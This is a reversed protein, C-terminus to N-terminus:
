SRPERPLSSQSETGESEGHATPASPGPERPAGTERSAPTRVEYGAEAGPRGDADGGAVGDQLEAPAPLRRVVGGEAAVCFGHNRSWLDPGSRWRWGLRESQINGESLVGSVSAVVVKNGDRITIAFTDRGRGPEGEDAARAEFTYGTVGNWRGTGSLVVSDVTPKPGRGPKFAPNDWFVIAGISTSEFRDTRAKQKATKPTRMEYRLAGREQGVHREAARFEFDHDRGDPTRLGGEGQMRGELGSVTYSVSTTSANGAADQAMVTFTHTGESSTDIPAGSPVPGACSVIGSGSDACSYSAIVVQNFEYTVNSPSTTAVTPAITDRVTVTVTDAATGGYRDDVTLTITHMGLPLTVSISAGTRQGFPGTWTFTLADSDPDSSASGDLTVVADAPSTAEVVQDPGASAVPPRNLPEVVAFPSLSEVRACVIQHVTDVPSVTRDVWSGNEFHFLHPPGKRLITGAYSACVIVPPRYSATTSVDFVLPPNGFSFRDPPTGPEEVTGTTTGAATVDAFTVTVLPTGESSELLPVTVHSGARTNETVQLCNSFMSTAPNWQSPWRGTVTVTVFEGMSLDSTVRAFIARGLDDTTVTLSGLFREGRGGASQAAGRRPSNTVVVNTAPDPGHNTVTVTFGIEHSPDVTAADAVNTITLDASTPPGM